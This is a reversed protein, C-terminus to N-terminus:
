RRWAASSSASPSASRRPSTSSRSRRASCRHDRVVRPVAGDRRPHRLHRQPPVPRHGQHDAHPLPAADRRVRRDHRRGGAPRHRQLADRLGQLHRRRLLGPRPRLDPRPGQGLAAQLVSRDRLRLRHHRRPLRHAPVPLGASRDGSRADLGRDGDLRRHRQDAPARVADGDQRDLRRRDDDGPAVPDGPRRRDAPGHDARAAGVGHRRPEAGEARGVRGQGSGVTKENLIPNPVLPRGEFVLRQCGRRHCSDVQRCRRAVGRLRRGGGEATTRNVAHWRTFLVNRTPPSSRTPITLM